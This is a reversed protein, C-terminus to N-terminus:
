RAATGTGRGGPTECELLFVGPFGTGGGQLQTRGFLVPLGLARRHQVDGAAVGKPRGPCLGTGQAQKVLAERSCTDAFSEARVYDLELCMLQFEVAAPALATYIM